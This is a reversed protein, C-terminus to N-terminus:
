GTRSRTWAGTRTRSTGGATSGSAASRATAHPASRLQGDMYDLYRYWDGKMERGCGCRDARAPITPTIGTSSRTTSSSSSARSTASTPWCRSSTRRTPRATWSTTTPSRSDFMAFGDHHKSTITIYKMGAAKALSVWEAPDFETPNFLGPLKEYDAVSIRRQHMVWEGDMLTSYVGWHVFLGFKADQFWRRAELNAPTPQDDAAVATAFPEAAVTGAPPSVALALLAVALAGARPRM